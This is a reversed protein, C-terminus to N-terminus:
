QLLSTNTKKFYKSFINIVKDINTLQYPKFNYEPFTTVEYGMYELNKKFHSIIDNKTELVLLVKKSRNM